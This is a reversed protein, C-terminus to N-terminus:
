AALRHEITALPHTWDPDMATLAGRLHEIADVRRSRITRESCGRAEAIAAATDGRALRRVLDLTRDDVGSRGAAVLIRALATTPHVGDDHPAPLEGRDEMRAVDAIRERQTSVRRRPSRLAESLAADVIRAAGCTRAAEADYRVLRMSCHSLVLDVAENTPLYTTQRCTRAVVLPILRQLAVRQALPECRGAVVLWHFLDDGDAGHRRHMAEVVRQLDRVGALRLHIRRDLEADGVELSRLRTVTHSRGRLRCWERDLAATMPSTSTFHSTALSTTTVSTDM